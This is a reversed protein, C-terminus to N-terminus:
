RIRVLYVVTDDDYRGGTLTLYITGREEARFRLEDNYRSSNRGLRTLYYDDYEADWSANRSAGRVTFTQGVNVSIDDVIGEDKLEDWLRQPNNCSFSSNRRSSNWRGCHDYALDEFDRCAYSDNDCVRVWVQQLQEELKRDSSSRSSTRRSRSSTDCRYKGTRRDYYRDYRCDDDYRSDYYRDYEDDSYWDEYYDDEYRDAHSALASAPLFVAAAGLLLSALFAPRHHFFTPHM